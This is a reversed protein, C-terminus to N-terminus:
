FRFAEFSFELTIIGAAMCIDGSRTTEPSTLPSANNQSIQNVRGLKYPVAGTASLFVSALADSGM